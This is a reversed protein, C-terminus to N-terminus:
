GDSFWDGFFGGELGVGYLCFLVFPFSFRFRVLWSGGGGKLHNM